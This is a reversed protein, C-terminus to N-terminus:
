LKSSQLVKNYILKYNGKKLIFYTVILHVVIFKVCSKFHSLAPKEGLTPGSFQSYCNNSSTRHKYPTCMVTYM